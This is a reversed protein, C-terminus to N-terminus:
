WSIKAGANWVFDLEQHVGGLNQYVPFLFNGFVSVYDNAKISLSPGLLLTTGGSDVMEKGSETQRGDIQLNVDLGIKTQFRNSKPNMLYDAFLYTSFLDGYEFEQSGKKKFVYLANGHLAIPYLEYKFTAGITYDYSGSGPQLEPEFRDGQSNTEKTSGTPFKVGAVLGLYNEDKRLFRYIGTLNLDGLGESQEKAGLREPLGTEESEEGEIVVSERVVYPIEVLATFEEWPNIGLTFHYFEEHTKDHFHHGTEHLEHAELAPKEHWNQQEFAFDFFWPQNQNMSEADSGARSLACGCSDCAFISGSNFSFLFLLILIYFVTKKKM